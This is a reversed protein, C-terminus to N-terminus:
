RREYTQDSEWVNTNPIAKWSGLREARPSRLRREPPPYALFAKIILITCATNGNYLRLPQGRRRRAEYTGKNALSEQSKFISIARTIHPFRRNARVVGVDNGPLRLSTLFGEAVKDPGFDLRFTMYEFRDNKIM